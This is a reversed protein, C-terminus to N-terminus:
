PVVKLAHSVSSFAMTLNGRPFSCQAEGGLAGALFNKREARKRGTTEKTPFLAKGPSLNILPHAEHVNM